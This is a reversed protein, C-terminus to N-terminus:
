RHIDKKSRSEIVAQIWPQPLIVLTVAVWNYPSPLSWFLMHGMRIEYFSNASRSINMNTFFIFQIRERSGTGKKLFAEAM